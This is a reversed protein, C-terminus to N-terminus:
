DNHKIIMNTSSKIEDRMIRNYAWYIYNSNENFRYRPNDNEDIEVHRVFRELIDM